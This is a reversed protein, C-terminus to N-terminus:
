RRTPTWTSTGTRASACTPRRSSGTRRRSRSGSSSADSRSRARSTSSSSSSSRATARSTASSRASTRTASTGSASASSGAAAAAAGRPVRSAGERGASGRLLQPQLHRHPRARAARAVCRWLFDHDLEEHSPAKFSYVQCGQPNIGSMVHKIAGDKGAADMAQFMCCCRGAIRRTSCTRCSRSRRRAKRSCSRRRASTTPTSCASRAGPRPGEAPVEDGREIRHPRSIKRSLKRITADDM